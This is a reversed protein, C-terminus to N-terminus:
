KIKRGIVDLMMDYRMGYRVGVRSDIEEWGIFVECM